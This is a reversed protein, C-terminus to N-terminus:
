QVARSLKDVAASLHFVALRLEKLSDAIPSEAKPEPKFAPQKKLSECREKTHDTGDNEVFIKKTPNWSILAGCGYKCEKSSM